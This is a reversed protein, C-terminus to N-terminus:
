RSRLEWRHFRWRPFACAYRLGATIHFKLRRVVHLSEMWLRGMRSSGRSYAIPSPRHPRRFQFLRKRRIDFWDSSASVFERHLFLSYKDNHFNSLASTKGYKEVWLRMAPTVASAARKEIVEPIVAGFLSAAMRFVVACVEPLWLQGSIRNAFRHWFSNDCRRISLFQAIELFISLRCWNRLIHRFAHLVQFTLSDEANLGSYELGHWHRRVARRLLDEPLRIGIKEEGPEWLRVHVEIPRALRSSYLGVAGRSTEVEAATPVYITHYDERSKKKRYGAKQLAANAHELWTPQILVDHDYQARLSADPCYDPVLAIGKLLAYDIGAERFLHCLVRLEEAIMALRTRNETYSRDLQARVVTPISDQANAAQVKHRFYLALGSLDLWELNREWENRGFNQWIVPARLDSPSVNLEGLIAQRLPQRM